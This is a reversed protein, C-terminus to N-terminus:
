ALPRGFVYIDATAASGQAVTLSLFIPNTSLVDLLGVLTLVLTKTSATLASFIQAAVIATGGKAAGTYIGGNALTLSASANTVLIKEIIYKTATGLSLAIAQDATTNMNASLKGLLTPNTNTTTDAITPNLIM